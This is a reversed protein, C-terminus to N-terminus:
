INTMRGVQWKETIAAINLLEYERSEHYQPQAYHYFHDSLTASTPRSELNGAVYCETVVSLVTFLLMLTSLTLIALLM